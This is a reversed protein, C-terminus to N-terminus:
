EAAGRFFACGIGGGEERRVVANSPSSFVFFVPNRQMLFFTHSVNMKLASLRLYQLFIEISCSFIKKTSQLVLSSIFTVKEMESGNNM